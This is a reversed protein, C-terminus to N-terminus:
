IAESAQVQKAWWGMVSQYDFYVPAQRTNGEKIPRPFTSDRKILSDLKDRSSSLLECVKNKTLRLPPFDMKSNNGQNINRLSM